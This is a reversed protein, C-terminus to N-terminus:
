KIKIYINDYYKKELSILSNNSIISWKIQLKLETKDNNLRYFINIKLTNKTLDLNMSKIIIPRFIIYTNIKIKSEDFLLKDYKFYDQYNTTKKVYDYKNFLENLKFKTQITQGIINNDLPPNVPKDPNTPPKPKDPNTNPYNNNPPNPKTPPKPEPDTNPPKPNIDPKIPKNTGENKDEEDSDLNNDNNDLPPTTPKNADGNGNEINPKNINDNPKQINTNNNRSNFYLVSVLALGSSIILTGILSWIGIKVSKRM